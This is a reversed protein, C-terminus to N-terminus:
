MERLLQGDCWHHEPIQVVPFEEGALIGQRLGRIGDPGFYNPAVRRGKNVVMQLIAHSADKEKFRSNAAKWKIVRRFPAEEGHAEESELTFMRPDFMM